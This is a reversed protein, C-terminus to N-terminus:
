DDGWGVLRGWVHWGCYPCLMSPLVSGDSTISKGERPHLWVGCGGCTYIFGEPETPVWSGPAADDISEARPLDVFPVGM